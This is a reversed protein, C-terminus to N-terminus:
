ARERGLSSGSEWAHQRFLLWIVKKAVDPRSPDTITLLPIDRGGASKGVSTQQLQPHAGVDRLLASLNENTYPPVHAIWIRHERPTVHLRLMPVKSDYEASDLMHWTVRDYSYFPLTVGTIAGRNPQYNYEGALDVLDLTIATNKAGDVRFYYWSAQRNRHDQDVDGKVACQFHTPSVVQIKGLSGGEFDTHLSIAAVALLLLMPPWRRVDSLTTGNGILHSM